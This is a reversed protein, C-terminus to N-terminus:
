AWHGAVNPQNCEQLAGSQFQQIADDVTKENALYVKIDAASLTRYAKPGVNGTIVAKVGQQILTNSSQIGAGQMANLNQTNDVPQVSNTETDVILFFQARGFRPDFPSNKEKGQATVAIKM